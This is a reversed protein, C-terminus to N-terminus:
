RLNVSLPLRLDSLEMLLELGESVEIRGTTVLSCFSSEEGVAVASSRLGTIPKEATM